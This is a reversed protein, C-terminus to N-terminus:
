VIDGLDLFPETVGVDGGRTKVIPTLGSELITRCEHDSILPFRCPQYRILM